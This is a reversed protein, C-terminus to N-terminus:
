RPGGGAALLEMAREIPVHVRGAGRDVWGYGGLRADEAARLGVLDRLPDSQLRPEPPLKRGYAAMPNAPPGQATERRAYFGLLARMGGATLLVVAAIALGAVTVPRLRIDRTEHGGPGTM